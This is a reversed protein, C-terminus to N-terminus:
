AARMPRAGVEAAPRAAAAPLSVVTTLGGGPTEEPEVTGGMAQAPGRSVVLRLEHAFNSEEALAVFYRLHRLELGHPAGTDAPPPQDPAAPVQKMDAVWVM